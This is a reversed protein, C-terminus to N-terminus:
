GIDKQDAAFGQRRVAYEELRAGAADIEAATLERGRADPGLDVALHLYRAGRECAQAALHVPLTGAVTDGARVDDADLHEVWRDVALGRARAWEVAGHHRSVFWVTV